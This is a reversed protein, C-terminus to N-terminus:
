PEIRHHDPNEGDRLLCPGVLGGLWHQMGPFYRQAAFRHQRAASAVLDALQIRRDVKSDLFTLPVGPAGFTTAHEAFAASYGEDHGQDIYAHTLVYSTTDIAALALLMPRRLRYDAGSSAPTLASTWTYTLALARVGAIQQLSFLARGYTALRETRDPLDGRRITGRQAKTPRRGYVSGMWERPSSQNPFAKALQSALDDLHAALRDAASQLCLVVGLVVYRDTPGSEDVFMVAPIRADPTSSSLHKVSPFSAPHPRSRRGLRMPATGVIVLATSLRHPLKPRPAPPNHRARV